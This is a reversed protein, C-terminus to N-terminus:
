WVAATMQYDLIGVNRGALDQPRAIGSAANIYVQSHRFARSPFVPIAIFRRDDRALMMFYTSASMESVDFEAHQAQRRFLDGIGQPVIYNLDIGEPSVVGSQLAETRDLYTMGGYAIALRKM